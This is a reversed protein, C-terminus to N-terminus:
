PEAARTYSAVLTGEASLLELLRGAVQYRVATPLAELYAAQQEMIGEPEACAKRTAAPKGIEIAGRDTTYTAAYTNCGASGSLSGTEVFSATIETGVLLTTFAGGQLLGTAHWSGVPTAVRYRLLEVEDADLLALDGNESRWATVRALAALYVREVEDAPPPCAMRTSAIQGLELMNGDVAYSATYRNCGTSGAARGAEFSVSPAVAEWGEVDVGSALLWPVEEFSSADASSEGDGGCGAVLTAVLPMALLTAVLGM